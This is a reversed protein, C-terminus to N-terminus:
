LVDNTIKLVNMNLSIYNKICEHEIFYKSLFAQFIIGVVISDIRMFLVEKAIICVYWQPSSFYSCLPPKGALVM